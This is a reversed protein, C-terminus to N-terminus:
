NRSGERMRAFRIMPLIYLLQFKHYLLGFFKKTKHTPKAILVDSVGHRVVATKADIATSESGNSLLGSGLDRIKLSSNAIMCSLISQDHRHKASFDFLPDVLLKPKSALVRWEEVFDQVAPSELNIVVLSATWMRLNRARSLKFYNLCKRSTNEVLPVNQSFLAIDFNSKSDLFHILPDRLFVFDSDVYVLFQSNCKSMAHLVATPKWTWYGAGKRAHMLITQARSLNNEIDVTALRTLSYSFTKLSQELRIVESEFNRSENRTAFTYFAISNELKM